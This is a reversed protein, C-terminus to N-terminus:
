SDPVNNRRLFECASMKATTHTYILTNHEMQVFSARGRLETKKNLLTRKHSIDRVRDM